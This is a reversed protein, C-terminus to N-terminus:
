EQKPDEPDIPKLEGVGAQFVRKCNFCIFFIPVVLPNPEKEILLYTYEECYKCLSSTSKQLVYLIMPGRWLLFCEPDHDEVGGAKVM